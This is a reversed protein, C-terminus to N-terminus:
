IALLSKIIERGIGSKFFKERRRAEERTEVEEVYILEFPARNKTSQGYGSNHRKIRNELDLTMGVYLNNDKLSQLIYVYFM